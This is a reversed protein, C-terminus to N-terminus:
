EEPDTQALQTFLGFKPAFYRAFLESQTHVGAKSHVSTLHNKVTSPSISLMAGIEKYSRGLLRFMLIRMEQHTLAMQDTIQLVADYFLNDAPHEAHYRLSHDEFVFKLFPELEAMTALMEDTFPPHVSERFLILSGMWGRDSYSLITPPHYDERSRVIRELEMDVVDELRRHLHPSISDASFGLPSADNAVIKMDAWNLASDRHQRGLMNTMIAVHDIEPLLRRLAAGLGHSWDRAVTAAPMENLFAIFQERTPLSPMGTVQRLM